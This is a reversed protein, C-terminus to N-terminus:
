VRGRVENFKMIMLEADTEVWANYFKNNDILNFSIPSLNCIM